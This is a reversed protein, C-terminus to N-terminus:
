WGYKRGSYRMGQVGNGRILVSSSSGSEAGYYTTGMDQGDTGAQYGISGTTLRYGAWTAPPSGSVFTPAGSLQNSGSGGSQFQNDTVVCSTCAPDGNQLLNVGSSNIFLNNRLLLNTTPGNEPKGNFNITANRVTNHEFLPDSISGCQVAVGNASSHEFVNNTFVESEGGDYFGLDVSNNVFHNNTVTTISNGYGQLADVHPPGAPAYLDTCTQSQLINTFINGSVTVGRGSIQVGDSCGGPGFTNGAITIGTMNTYEGVVQMRGEYGGDANFAGFTNAEVLINNNNFGGAQIVFQATGFASNKITINKNGSGAMWIGGSITLGDFTVGNAASQISIGITPGLPTVAQVTVRPNKTFTGLTVTGYAGSNLCITSGAAASSIASAVNAGVSLTQDCAAGALDALSLMALLLCTFRVVILQM